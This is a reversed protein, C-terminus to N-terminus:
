LSRDLPIAFAACFALVEADIGPSKPIFLSVGAGDDSYLFALEYCQVHEELYECVPVFDPEPFRSEDFPNTAISCGTARELSTLTDNSEVVIMEGHTEADYVEGDCIEIFRKEVLSRVDPDAIQQTHDPGRIRIM